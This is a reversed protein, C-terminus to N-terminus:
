KAALVRGRSGTAHTIVAAPDIAAVGSRIEFHLHAGHSHGSNGSMAIRAGQPIWQGKHVLLKSNHAYITAVGSSHRIVIMKGYGRIREGAYLVQGAHSSFVSTGSRARLDVGEHFEHARQGFPSTIQVKELPWTLALERVREVVEESSPSRDVSKKNMAIDKSSVKPEIIQAFARDAGSHAPHLALRDLLGQRENPVPPPTACGVLLIPFVLNLLLSSVRNM